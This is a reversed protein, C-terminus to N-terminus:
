LFPRPCNHVLGETITYKLHSYLNERGSLVKRRHHGVIVLDHEAARRCIEELPNGEDVVQKIEVHCAVARAVCTKLLEGALSHLEKTIARYADACRRSGIMGGADNRLLEWVGESDIVHQTLVKGGAKEAIKWCLEAAYRSEESGTIPLLISPSHM